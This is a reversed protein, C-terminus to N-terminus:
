DLQIESTDFQSSAVSDVGGEGKSRHLQDKGQKADDHWYQGHDREDGVGDDDNDEASGAHLRGGVDNEEGHCNAIKAGNEGRSRPSIM